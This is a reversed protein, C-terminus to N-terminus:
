TGQYILYARKQQLQGDEVVEMPADVRYYHSGILVEDDAAVTTDSRFIGKLARPDYRTGEVNTETIPVPFYWIKETDQHGTGGWKWDPEGNALTGDQYKHRITVTVGYRQIHSDRVNSMIDLLGM